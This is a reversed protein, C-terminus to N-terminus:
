GSLLREIWRKWRPYKERLWRHESGPSVPRLRPGARSQAPRGCALWAAGRLTQDGDTLIAVPRELCAALASAFFPDRSLGGSLRITEPLRPTLGELIERVRFVVGEAVTRRQGPPDLQQAAPSLTM